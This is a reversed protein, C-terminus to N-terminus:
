MVRGIKVLGPVGLDRGFSFGDSGELTLLHGFRSSDTIEPLPGPCFAHLVGMFRWPCWTMILGVM